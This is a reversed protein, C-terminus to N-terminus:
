GGCKTAATATADEGKLEKLEAELENIREQMQMQRDVVANYADATSQWFDGDRFALPQTDNRQALGEMSRRLRVIPGSFNSSLRVTDVLFCPLLAVLVLFPWFNNAAMRMIQNAMPVSPDNTLVHLGVTLGVSLLLFLTWHLCIRRLLQGQIKVEVLRLRRQCKNQM